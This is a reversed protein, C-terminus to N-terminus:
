ALSPASVFRSPNLGIIKLCIDRFSKFVDALLLVDAQVYLDHYEGINKIKFKGWVKQSHIDDEKSINSLSLNRYYKKFPPYECKNFRSM